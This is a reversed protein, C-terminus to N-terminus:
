ILLLEVALILVLLIMGLDWVHDSLWLMWPHRELVGQM